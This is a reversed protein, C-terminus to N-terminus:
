NNLFNKFSDFLFIKNKVQHLTKVDVMNFVASLTVRMNHAEPGNFDRLSNVVDKLEELTNADKIQNKFKNKDLEKIFLKEVTVNSFNLAGTWTHFKVRVKGNKFIRVVEAIFHINGGFMPLTLTVQDGVNLQSKANTIQTFHRM